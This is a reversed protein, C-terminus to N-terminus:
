HYTSEGPNADQKVQITDTLLQLSPPLARTSPQASGCSSFSTTFACGTPAMSRRASPSPWGQRRHAPIGAFHRAYLISRCGLNSSGNMWVVAVTGMRFALCYLWHHLPANVPIDTVCQLSALPYAARDVRKLIGSFEESIVPADTPAIFAAFGGM